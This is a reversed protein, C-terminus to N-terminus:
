VDKIKNSNSNTVDISNLYKPLRYKKRWNRGCKGCTWDIGRSLIHTSKCEPCPPREEKKSM